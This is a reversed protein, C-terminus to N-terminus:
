RDGIIAGKVFDGGRNLAAAGDGVAATAGVFANAYRGALMGTIFRGTMYGINSATYNSSDSLQDYLAQHVLSRM